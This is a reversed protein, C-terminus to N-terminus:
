AYSFPFASQLVFSFFGLAELLWIRKDDKISPVFPSLALLLGSFEMIKEDKLSRRTVIKWSTTPDWFDLVLGLSPAPSLQFNKPFGVKFPSDGVWNHHWFSIKKGSGLKYTPYIEGWRWHQSINVWPCRLCANPKEVTFWGFNESGYVSDM